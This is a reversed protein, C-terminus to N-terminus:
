ALKGGKKGGRSPRIRVSPRKTITLTKTGGKKTIKLKKGKEM